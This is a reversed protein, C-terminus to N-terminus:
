FILLLVPAIKGQNKRDKGSWPKQHRLIHKLKANRQFWLIRRMTKQFCMVMYNRMHIERLFDLLTSKARERITPRVLSGFLCALANRNERRIRIKFTRGRKLTQKKLNKKLRALTPIVMFSIARVDIEHRFIQNTRRLHYNLYITAIFQTVMRRKELLSVREQLM